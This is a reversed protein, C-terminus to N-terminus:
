VQCHAQVPKGAVTLTGAAIANAATITTDAFAIRTAMDTCSSLTGGTAGALRPLDPTDSDAGCASLLLAAATAALTTLRPSNM